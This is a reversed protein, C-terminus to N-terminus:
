CSSEGAERIQADLYEIAWPGNDDTLATIAQGWPKCHPNGNHDGRSMAARTELVARKAKAYACPLFTHVWTGDALQGAVTHPFSNAETWGLKDCLAQAAAEHNALPDLESDYPVIITGAGCIAKIRSGRVNTPNMYKTQIAQM